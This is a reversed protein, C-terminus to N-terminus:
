RQNLIVWRGRRGGREMLWGKVSISPSHLPASLPPLIFHSEPFYGPCKVDWGDTRKSSICYQGALLKPCKCVPFSFSHPRYIYRIRYHTCRPHQEMTWTRHLQLGPDSSPLPDLTETGRSYGRQGGRSGRCGRDQGWGSWRDEVCAVPIGCNRSQQQVRVRSTAPPRHSSVLDSLSVKSKNSM